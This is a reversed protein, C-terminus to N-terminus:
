APASGAVDRRADAQLDIVRDQEDVIEGTIVELVDELTVIGAVGGDEDVVVALHQRSEQFERLLRHAPAQRPVFRVKRCFNEVPEDARGQVLGALLDSRLVMGVVQDPSGNILVIRSHPAALIQAQLAGLTASVDFSFMRVRPTMIQSALTDDLEFVKQIMESEHRDIEGEHAGIRALMRIESEDTTTGEEARLMPKTLLSILWVLPTLLVSLWRLPIASNYAVSESHREGLTKPLIEAFVIILLSLLGMVAGFALAVSREDQGFIESFHATAVVGILAPGNAGFINSLIVLVSITRPMDDTVEKLALSRRTGRDLLQRVRAEPISLVAAEVLSCLGSTLIVAASLILLTFM